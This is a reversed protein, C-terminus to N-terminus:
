TGKVFCFLENNVRMILKNQYLAPMAKIPAKLNIKQHLKFKEGTGLVFCSGELTCLIIKDNLFIPSAYVEEELDEEYVISGDSNKLCTFIGSSDIVWIYTGNSIPSALEPLGGEDQKWKIFKESGKKEKLDLAIFDDDAGLTFMVEDIILPSCGIDGGISDIEWLLKGSPMQFVSTKDTSLILIDEGNQKALLPSKWSVEHEKRPINLLENGTSKDFFYLASKDDVQDWQVILKNEYILLSSSHGYSNDPTGLDLQWIIKGKFDCAVLDGNAFIAYVNVGDTVPTCAAFMSDDFAVPIEKGKSSKVAVAWKRKGSNVDYCYLSRKTGNAACIFIKDKWIIPSACGPLPVTSKWLVNKTTSFDEPYDQNKRKLYERTRFWPWNIIALEEFSLEKIEDGSKNKLAAYLQGPKKEQVYSAMVAIAVFALLFLVIALNSYKREKDIADAKEYDPVPAPMAPNYKVFLRCSIFFLVICIFLMTFGPNLNDILSFYEIRLEHDLVRIEEIHKDYEVKLKNKILKDESNEIKLVISKTKDKLESLYSNDVPNSQHLEIHNNLLVFYLVIIAIVFVFATRAGARRSMKWYNHEEHTNPLVPRNKESSLVKEHKIIKEKFLYESKKEDEENM